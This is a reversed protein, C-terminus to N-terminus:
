NDYSSFIEIVKEEVFKPANILNEQLSLEKGFAHIEVNSFESKCKMLAEEDVSGAM